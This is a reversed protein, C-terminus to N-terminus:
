ETENFPKDSLCNQQFIDIAISMTNGCMFDTFREQFPTILSSTPNSWTGDVEYLLASFIDMLIGNTDSIVDEFNTKDTYLKDMCILNFGFRFIGERPISIPQPIIYVVVGTFEFEEADNLFGYRVEHVMKHAGATRKIRDVIQKQTIIPTTM